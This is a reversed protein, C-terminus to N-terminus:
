AVTPPRVQSSSWREPVPPQLWDKLLRTLRPMMVWTVIVTVGMCLVLTRLVVSIGLLRPILTLNFLLVPPFVAGLTVLAMKWKPPPSSAQTRKEFWARVGTVQQIQIPQAFSEALDMWGARTAADEWWAASERDVWRYIVHWEGGAESPGLIGGGLFDASEEAQRLWSAAWAYFDDERGYAVEHVSTITLSM